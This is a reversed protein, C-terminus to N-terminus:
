EPEIRRVTVREIRSFKSAALERTKREAIEATLAREDVDNHGDITGHWLGGTKRVVITIDMWCFTACFTRPPLRRGVRFGESERVMRRSLSHDRRLPSGLLSARLAGYPVGRRRVTSSGSVVSNYINEVCSRNTGRRLHLGDKVMRVGACRRLQQTAKVSMQKRKMTHENPGQAAEGIDM